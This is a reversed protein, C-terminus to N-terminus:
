FIRLLTERNRAPAQFVRGFFDASTVKLVQLRDRKGLAGRPRVM